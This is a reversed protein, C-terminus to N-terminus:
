EKPQVTVQLGNLILDGISILEQELAEKVTVKLGDEFLVEIIESMPYSFLYVNAEDEFIIEPLYISPFAMNDPYVIEVRVSPGPETEPTPETTPELTPTPEPTPTPELTPTPTPEPPPELTPTPEPTPELTPTPPPELTPTPTPEPTPNPTPEPTTTSEPTPEPTQIPEISPGPTSSPTLTPEVPIPRAPAACSAASAILAAFTLAFIARRIFSTKNNERKKNM